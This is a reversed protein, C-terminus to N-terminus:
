CLVIVIVEEGSRRPDRLQVAEWLVLSVVLAIVVVLDQLFPWFGCIQVPVDLSLSLKCKWIGM